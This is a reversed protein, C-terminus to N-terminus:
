ATLEKNSHAKKMLSVVEDDSVQMFSAYFESVTSFNSPTHLCIIEDAKKRLGSIAKTSAVPVAVIVMFPNSRKVLDVTSDMTSGTAIGDDVIIVIKHALSMHPKHGMYLKYGEKLIQRLRWTEDNIYEDTVGTSDSIITGHLSVAGIAFEKNLPHGLKKTLVIELPLNLRNAVHYGLVVGGRPVALVVGDKNKYKSLKEALRLSAEERDKFIM